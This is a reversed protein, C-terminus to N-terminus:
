AAELPRLRGRSPGPAGRLHRLRRTSLRRPRAPPRSSTSRPPWRPRSAASSAPAGDSGSTRRPIRLVRPWTVAPLTTYNRPGISMGTRCSPRRGRQTGHASAVRRTPSWLDASQLLVTSTLGISCCHPGGREASLAESRCDRHHPAPNSGAVKPNHAIGLLDRFEQRSGYTDTPALFRSLCRSLARRDGPKAVVPNRSRRACHRCALHHGRDCPGGEGRPRRSGGDPPRTTRGASAMAVAANITSPHRATRGAAGGGVIVTTPRPTRPWRELRRM